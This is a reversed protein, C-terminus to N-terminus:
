LRERRQTNAHACTRACTRANTQTHMCAHAHTRRRTGHVRRPAARCCLPRVRTTPKCTRQPRPHPGPDRTHPIGHACACTGFGDGRARAWAWRGDPSQVLAPGSRGPDGVHRAGAARRMYTLYRYLACMCTRVILACMRLCVYLPVCVFACM